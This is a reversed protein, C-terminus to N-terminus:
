KEKKEQNTKQQEIAQRIINKIRTTRNYVSNEKNKLDLVGKKIEPLLLLTKQEIDNLQKIINKISSIFPYEIESTLFDKTELRYDHVLKELIQKIYKFDSEQRKQISNNKEKQYNILYEEISSLFYAHVEKTNKIDLIKICRKEINILEERIRYKITFIESNHRQVITYINNLAEPTYDIINYLDNFKTTWEPEICSVYLDFGRFVMQRPIQKIREYQKLSTRFLINTKFPNKESANIFERINGVNEDINKITNELDLELIQLNNLSDLKEKNEEKQLSQLFQLKQINNAEVQMRFALFTTIVGAIAIFPNMIGGITDGITGTGTFDLRNCCSSATFIYPAIFSFAIFAFSLWILITSAKFLSKSNKMM